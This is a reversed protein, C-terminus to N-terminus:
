RTSGGWLHQRRGLCSSSTPAVLGGALRQYLNMHARETASPRRRCSRGDMSPPCDAVQHARTSRLAFLEESRYAEHGHGRASSSSQKLFPAYVTPTYHCSPPLAGPGASLAQGGLSEGPGTPGASGRGPDVSASPRASGRRSTTAGHIEPELGGFSTTSWRGQRIVRPLRSM